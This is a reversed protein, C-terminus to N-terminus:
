IFLHIKNIFIGSNLKLSDRLKLSQYFLAPLEESEKLKFRSYALNDLLMAYLGPKLILDKQGLGKQFYNKALLYKQKNLYLFGINNYTMAKSQFEKPIIEDDSILLAKNHYSIANEYEGLEGYIIGLLNYADYLVNNVKKEGKIVM